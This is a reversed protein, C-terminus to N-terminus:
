TKDINLQAMNEYISIITAFAIVPISTIEISYLFSALLTFPLYIRLLSSKILGSKGKARQRCYNYWQIVAIVFLIFGLVGSLAFQKILGSRSNTLNNFEMSSNDKSEIYSMKVNNSFGQIGYGWIIQLPDNEIFDAFIYQFGKIKGWNGIDNLIINRSDTVENEYVDNLNARFEGASSYEYYMNWAKYFGFIGVFIFFIFFLYRGMNIQFATKKIYLFFALYLMMLITVALITKSDVTAFQLFTIFLLLLYSKNKTVIWMLILLLSILSAYWSTLHSGDPGFTGSAVDDLAAIWELQEGYGDIFFVSPPPLLELVQLFSVATQLIAVAIFLNLFKSYHFYKLSKEQMLFYMLFFSSLSIIVFPSQLQIVSSILTLLLFFLWIVIFRQKLINRPIKNQFIFFVVVLLFSPKVIYRSLFDVSIYGQGLFYGYTFFWILLIELTRYLNRSLAYFLILLAILIAMGDKFIAGGILIIAFILLYRIITNWNLFDINDNLISM